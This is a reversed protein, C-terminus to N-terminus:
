FIKSSDLLITVPGDNILGVKMDAGFVGTKVDIGRNNFENITKECIMKAKVPECSSTFDPRRGKRCDGFLTFQSVLLIEGSVDNVSLNMKENSDEFIRLNVTKDVIYKIDSEDDGPAVALLVLLGQKISSYLKGDIVVEAEGVRQIVARLILGGLVRRKRNGAFSRGM